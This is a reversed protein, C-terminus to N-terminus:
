EFIGTPVDTISPVDVSQWKVSVQWFMGAKIDRPNVLKAFVTVPHNIYVLNDGNTAWAFKFNKKRNVNNWFATNAKTGEVEFTAEHDAGTVRTTEKGFGEEETPTGGPYEGRTKKLPWILQPSATIHAAWESEDTIDTFEVSEDILAIGIVGGLEVGCDNAVYDPVSTGCYLDAM